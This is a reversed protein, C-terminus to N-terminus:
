SRVHRGSSQLKTEDVSRRFKYYLDATSNDMEGDDRGIHYGDEECPDVGVPDSKTDRLVETECICHFESTSRALTASTRARSFDLTLM